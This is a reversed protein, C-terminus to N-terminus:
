LVSERGLNYIDIQREEFLTELSDVGKQNIQALEMDSIPVTLLWTVKKKPFELTPFENRWGFPPLFLIHKMSYEPYYMGVIHKFTAGPRCKFGSNIINFACTSIINPYFEYETRCAGAIEIGLSVEGVRLGISYDSLGITSYSTISKAPIDICSLLDVKSKNNDDLYSWVNPTGGIVDLITRAIQKNESSILTSM